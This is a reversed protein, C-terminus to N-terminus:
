NKEYKAKCLMECRNIYNLLTFGIRWLIVNYVSDVIITKRITLVSIEGIQLSKQMELYIPTMRVIMRTKGIVNGALMLIVVVCLWLVVTLWDAKRKM